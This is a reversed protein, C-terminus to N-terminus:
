KEGQRLRKTLKRLFAVLKPSSLEKEMEKKDELLADLEGDDLWIGHCSPCVDVKVPLYYSIQRGVLGTKECCPCRMFGELEEQETEPDGYTQELDEEVEQKGTSRLQKLEGYDLWIGDCKHCKDIAVDDVDLRALLTGDRPCKM